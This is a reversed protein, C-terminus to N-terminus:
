TGDANEALKTAVRELRRLRALQDARTPPAQGSFLAWLKVPGGFAEYSTAEALLDAPATAPGVSRIAEITAVLRDLHIPVGSFSRALGLKFVADPDLGCVALRLRLATEDPM